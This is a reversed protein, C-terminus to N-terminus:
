KHVVKLLTNKPFCLFAEELIFTSGNTMSELVKYRPKKNEKVRRVFPSGLSLTDTSPLTQQKVPPTRTLPKPKEIYEPKSHEQTIKEIPKKRSYVIVQSPSITAPDAKPDVGLEKQFDSGNPLQFGSQIPVIFYELSTNPPLLMNTAAAFDKLDLPESFLEMEKLKNM